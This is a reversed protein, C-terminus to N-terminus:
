LEDNMDRRVFTNREAKSGFNGACLHLDAFHLHVKVVSVIEAGCGVGTVFHKEIVSDHAILCEVLARVHYFCAPSDNIWNDIHPFRQSRTIEWVVSSSGPPGFFGSVDNGTIATGPSFYLTSASTSIWTKGHSCLDFDNRLNVRKRMRCGLFKM